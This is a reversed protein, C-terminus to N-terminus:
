ASGLRSATQIADALESTDIRRPFNKLSASRAVTVLAIHRATAQIGSHPM